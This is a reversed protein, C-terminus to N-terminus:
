SKTQGPKRYKAILVFLLCLMWGPLMAAPIIFLDARINYKSPLYVNYVIYFFAGAVAFFAALQAATTPSRLFGFWPVILGLLICGLTIISAVNSVTLSEM